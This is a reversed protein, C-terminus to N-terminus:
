RALGDQVGIEYEEPDGEPEEEAGEESAAESEGGAAMLELRHKVADHDLKALTEARRTRSKMDEVLLKVQAQIAAIKERSEIQAAQTRERETAADLAKTLEAHQQMLQEFKAQFEPPVPAGEGGEEQLQPPLMKKLRDAIEAAGPWDFHRVLLDGIFQMLQPNAQVLSLVSDVFEQRKSQYNPGVSITPDYHGRTVDYIHPKGNDDEFLANITALEETQDPKIIRIVRGPTDYIVPIMSLAVRGVHKIARTLNDIIHFNAVDGQAKRAMIAKGSQEPGRQGLSADYIGTTAKLDNEAEAIAVAIARIPPEVAQRQPPPAFQGNSQQVLKYPLVPINQVNARAYLEEYGEITGEAAMWPSKPALGITETLASRQVNYAQQADKAYRVMGVLKRHGDVILEEGLVPIIPIYTGPVIRHELVERANILHWRIVRSEQERTVPGGDRGRMLVAGEPIEDDFVYGGDALAVITRPKTEVTFYEAVRVKGDPFWPREGDGISRFDSLGALESDPYTERYADAEIDAVVFAWKADSYDPKKASPDFYVTFPDSVREVYIEQDFSDPGAYDTLVRIYGFGGIVACQFATDYAIDADSKVEIHRILGQIVHATDVSAGDGVPNIQIAPRSQRQQNIVQRCFQPLRNITLCPRGNAERDRKIHEPWQEGAYFRLDRLAEERLEREAEAALKWRKRATSLFAELDQGDPAKRVPPQLMHTARAVVTQHSTLQPM